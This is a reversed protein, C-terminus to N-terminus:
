LGSRLSQLVIWRVDDSTEVERAPPTIFTVVESEKLIVRGAGCVKRTRFLQHFPLKVVGIGFESNTACIVHGEEAVLCVHGIGNHEDTRKGNVFPSTIFLLDGPILLEDRGLAQGHDRCFEFQQTSRRPISIGCQAYVWKTFSSCDFNAPAEWQRSPLKWAAKGVLGEALAIIDVKIKRIEEKELIEIAEEANVPLDISKLDVACRGNVARYNM